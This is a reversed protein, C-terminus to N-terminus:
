IVALYQSNRSDSFDCSPVFYKVVDKPSRFPVLRLDIKPLANNARNTAGESFPITSVVGGFSAGIDDIYGVMSDILKVDVSTKEKSLICKCDFVGFLAVGTVNHRVLIDIQRNVRSFRGVLKQDFM